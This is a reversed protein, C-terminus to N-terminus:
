NPNLNISDIDPTVVARRGLEGVVCCHKEATNMAVVDQAFVCNTGPSVDFLTEGLKLKIAGSKYILMKGMYGGPLDQLGIKMNGESATSEGVKEKGKRSVSKELLPLPPLQFLIMKGQEIDELLEAASNVTKEDYEKSTADEGFEEADLREPDGSYPKRLPLTTPYHSHHYDWPEKYEDDSSDMMYVDSQEKAFVKSASGSKDSDESKSVGFTRLWQSSSDGPGFAVQVSSQKQAKPGRRALSENFRRLLANAEGSQEEDVEEVETKTTTSKSKSKRIPPAKPAFKVKRRIPTPEEPDM